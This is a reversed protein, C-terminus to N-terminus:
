TTRKWAAVSHGPNHGTKVCIRAEQDSHRNAIFRGDGNSFGQEPLHEADWAQASLDHGIKAGLELVLDETMQTPEQMDILQPCRTVSWVAVASDLANMPGQVAEESFYHRFTLPVPTSVQRWTNQGVVYRSM